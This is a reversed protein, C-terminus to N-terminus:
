RGRRSRKNPAVDNHVAPINGFHDLTDIEFGKNGEIDNDEILGSANLVKVGAGENSWIQNLRLLIQSAERDLMVGHSLNDLIKNGVVTADGNGAYVLGMGNNNILNGTALMSSVGALHIGERENEAIVNDILLARDWLAHQQNVSIGRRGGLIKNKELLATGGLVSVMTGAHQRGGDVTSETLTFVGGDIQICPTASATNVASGMVGDIARRPGRAAPLFSVNAIMAHDNFNVPKYSLCPEDLKPPIIRVGAGPGREGQISIARSLKINEEYVGPMVLVVGGWAVSDVAQQISTFGQRGGKDVVVYNPKDEEAKGDGKKKAYESQPTVTPMGGFTQAAAQGPLLIAAAAALLGTGIIKM